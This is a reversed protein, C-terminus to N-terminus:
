WDIPTQGHKELFANAQSFHGCGFFGRYASLPSPHPASLILHNEKIILPAKARAHNGWLLFALHRHKASLERIVQDTLEAWGLAAHSGPKGEEVTLTANLLLVGQRAWDSLDTSRNEREPRNMDQAIEKFINRLSPPAKIGEPVSFALGHAQGVGHYPDQGLIIVRVEDFALEFARFVAEDPPFVTTKKRLARVRKRLKEAYGNQVLPITKKWSPHIM